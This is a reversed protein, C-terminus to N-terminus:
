LVHESAFHTLYFLVAQISAASLVSSFRLLFFFFQLRESNVYDICYLSHICYVCVCKCCAIAMLRMCLVCLTIIIIGSHYSFGYIADKDVSDIRHICELLDCHRCKLISTNALIEVRCCIKIHKQTHTHTWQRCQQQEDLDNSYYEVWHFPASYVNCGCDYYVCSHNGHNVSHFLVFHFCFDIRLLLLFFM